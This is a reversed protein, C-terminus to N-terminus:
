KAFENLYTMTEQGIINVLEAINDNYEQKQRSILRNTSTVNRLQDLTKNLNTTFDEIALRFNKIDSRVNTETIQLKNAINTIQRQVIQKEAENKESTKNFDTILDDIVLRFNEIDSRVNTETIQLKNSINTIKEQVIQKEAENKGSTKNFDTTLDDIVLRFNEIDSRVNTETIQLKNSINTIQEQVIQKEVENKESPFLGRKGGCIMPGLFYHIHGTSISTGYNLQTIPLKHMSSIEGIDVAKNAFGDCNCLTKTLGFSACEGELSCRCGEDTSNRDGHWFYNNEGYRDTWSAFKTLASSSCRNEIM